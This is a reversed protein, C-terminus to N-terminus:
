DSMEWLKHLICLITLFLFSIRNDTERADRPLESFEKHFRERSANTNARSFVHYKDIVRAFFFFFLVNYLHNFLALRESQSISIIKAEYQQGSKSKTRDARLCNTWGVM